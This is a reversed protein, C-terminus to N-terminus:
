SSAKLIGVAIGILLIPLILAIGGAFLLSLILIPTALIMLISAAVKAMGWTLRFALGVAKCMLWVFVAVTILEIM